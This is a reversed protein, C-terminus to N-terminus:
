EALKKADKMNQIKKVVREIIWHPTSAGSAVGTIGRGRAKFWGRRLDMETEVLHSNKRVKKCVFLLRSTNASNRGGVILMTDVTSALKAASEQRKVTDNCITNFMRVERCKKSLLAVCVDLHNAIDQTTQSIISIKDAPKFKLISAQKENKVVLANDGAFGVLSKVEPHRKEGVIIVKYGELSLSRALNQANSVFPCTTDIINLKRMKIKELLSPSIGHSSIIIAAGSSADDIDNIVKLGEEELKEVVQRNHIISGLSYVREREKLSNKAINIARRVGFCFGSRNALRVKM